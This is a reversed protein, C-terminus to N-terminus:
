SGLPLEFSEHVVGAAGFSLKWRYLGANLVRGSDENSTGLSFWASGEDRSRAVAAEVALTLAGADRGAPASALYQTHSVSATHFVLCGAVAAGDIRALVLEIAQPFRASLDSIEALSHLPRAQHHSALTAELIAWFQALATSRVEATVGHKHAKKLERQRLESPNRPTSLAFGASLDVRSRKANLRFLAYSDDDAPRRFYPRPISRYRLTEFGRARYHERLAEFAELMREGALEGRQVLGGYTIGPHSDVLKAESGAAAPLVGLLRGRSDFIMLSLDQFREGHYSLFRRSHLFTGNLSDAVFADWAEADAPEFAKVWLRDESL